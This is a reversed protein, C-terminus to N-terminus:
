RNHLSFRSIGLAPLPSPLLALTLVILLVSILIASSATSDLLQDAQRHEFPTFLHIQCSMVTVFVAIHILPRGDASIICYSQHNGAERGWVGKCNHWV